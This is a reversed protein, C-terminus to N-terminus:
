PRAPAELDAEPLGFYAGFKDTTNVGLERAVNAAWAASNGAYSKAMQEWTMWPKYVHSNGDRINAIKKYLAMWGGAKSLFHIANEGDSLTVYEVVSQGHEDGRSLDGPNNLRDPADGEVNAGEAMAIARAVNWVKDGTPWTAPDHTIENM